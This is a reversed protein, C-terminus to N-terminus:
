CNVTVLYSRDSSAANTHHLVVQGSSLDTTEDYYPIGETKANATRPTFHLISNKTILPDTVTTTASNATLTVIGGNNLKGRRVENLITRTEQEDFKAYPAIEKRQRTIV